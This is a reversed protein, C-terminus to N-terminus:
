VDQIISLHVFVNQHTKLRQILSINNKDHFIGIYTSVTHKQATKNSMGYRKRWTKRYKVAEIHPYKV